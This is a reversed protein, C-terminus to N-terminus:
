ATHTLRPGKRLWLFASQTRSKTCFSMTELANARVIYYNNEDKYRWVLGAAQDLAGSVPRFRVNISGDRVRAGKYIALPFRRNTKDTSLQALVNPKTPATDDRVIEWRPPGGENTMASIWGAPLSGPQAKDFTITEGAVGFPLLVAIFVSATSGRM